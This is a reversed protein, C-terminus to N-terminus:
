QKEGRKAQDWLADMLELSAAQATQGQEALNKEIYNFRREFKRNAARLTSEPDLKLHRGLNVVAFLLDGFEEAIAAKVNADMAQQLEQLEEAIKDHIDAINEWDFGVGAARKQLKVARSLAPLTVPVDDLVGHQEKHKREQKKISEWNQKVQITEVSQQGFRERLEGNPFVHPHRRVLKDVLTNVISDFSFQEREKGLQSYFIVQFLVDGLEEKIHTIDKREIADVLEYVEEISHPAISSFDQECDWPCGDEPNRLREMLYLLDQLNYKPSTSNDKM